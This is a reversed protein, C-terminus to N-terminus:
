QLQDDGIIPLPEIEGFRMAYSPYPQDAEVLSNPQYSSAQRDVCLRLPSGLHPYLHWQSSFPSAGCLLAARRRDGWRPRPDPAGQLPPHYLLELKAKALPEYNDISVSKALTSIERARLLGRHRM